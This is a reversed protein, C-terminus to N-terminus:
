GFSDILRALEAMVGVMDRDAAFAVLVKRAAALLDRERTATGRATAVSQAYVFAGETIALMPEAVIGTSNIGHVCQVEAGLRRVTHRTMTGLDSAGSLRWMDAVIMFRVSDRGVVRITQMLGPWEDVEARDVPGADYAWFTISVDNLRAWEAIEREQTARSPAEHAFERVYAVATRGSNLPPMKKSMQEM